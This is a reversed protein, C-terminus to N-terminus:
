IDEAELKNDTGEHPAWLLFASRAEPNPVIQQNSNLM